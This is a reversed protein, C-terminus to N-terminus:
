STPWQGDFLHVVAGTMEIHGDKLHEIRLTGGPLKVSLPWSTHGLSAGVVAAACAGTGCARTIGVGREYVVAHVQHQESFRVFEVNAGQKWHAHTSLAKGIRQADELPTDTEVVYHPNGMSVEHGVVMQGAVELRVESIPTRPPGMDVSVETVLGDGGLEVRASLVGSDTLLRYPAQLLKRDVLHKMACRFGNGCMEPRSGDANYIVMRFNNNERTIALVGDAGIGSHRDCLRRALEPSVEHDLLVVFDNETAHYKSFDRLSPRTYCPNEVGRM